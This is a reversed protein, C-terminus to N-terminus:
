PLLPSISDSLLDSWGQSFGVMRGGSVTGIIPQRSALLANGLTTYANSFTPAHYDCASSGNCNLAKWQEATVPTTLNDARERKRLRDVVESRQENVSVLSFFDAWVDRYAKWADVAANPEDYYIQFESDIASVASVWAYSGKVGVRETSAGPRVAADGAIYAAAAARNVENVIRQKIAQSAQRDAWQKTLAPLVLSGLLLGAVWPLARKAARRSWFWFRSSRSSTASGAKALHDAEAATVTLTCKSGDEFICTISAAADGDVPAQSIDSVKM